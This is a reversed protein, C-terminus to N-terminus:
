QQQVGLLNPSPRDGTREFVALYERSLLIAGSKGLVEVQLPVLSRGRDDEEAHGATVRSHGIELPAQFSLDNEQLVVAAGEAAALAQLRWKALAADRYVETSRLLLLATAGGLVVLIAALGYLFSGLTPRKTIM